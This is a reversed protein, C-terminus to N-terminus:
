PGADPREREQEIRVRIEDEGLPILHRGAGARPRGDFFQERVVPADIAQLDREIGDDPPVAARDHGPAHARELVVDRQIGREEGLRALEEMVSLSGDKRTMIEQPSGDPSRYAPASVRSIRRISGEIATM